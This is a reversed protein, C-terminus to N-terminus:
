SKKKPRPKTKRVRVMVRGNSCHHLEVNRETAIVMPCKKDLWCDCGPGYAMPPGGTVCNVLTATFALGPEGDDKIWDKGTWREVNILPEDKPPRGLWHKM